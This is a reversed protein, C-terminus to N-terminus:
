RSGLLESKRFPNVTCGSGEKLGLLSPCHWQTPSQQKRMERHDKKVRITEKM